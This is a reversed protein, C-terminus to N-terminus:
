DWLLVYLQYPSESVSPGQGATKVIITVQVETGTAKSFMAEECVIVSQTFSNTLLEALFHSDIEQKRSSVL